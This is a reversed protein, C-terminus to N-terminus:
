DFIAEAKQYATHVEEVATRIAAKEETKVIESLKYVEAELAGVAEDFREQRDTLWRHLEAAKLAPLKEHMAQVVARIQKLDYEPMYYHYLKYLEQHFADLEKVIPRITRVLREFGAHFREAQHLMEEQNETDAAEYLAKLSGNLFEKGSDWAPKKDRLIGPLEARNLAATLSDLQPLLEEIHDYNKNPYADHWLPYVAKHLEYLEPVAATLEEQTIVHEKQKRCGTSAILLVALAVAFVSIKGKM